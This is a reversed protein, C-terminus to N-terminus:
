PLNEMTIYQVLGLISTNGGTPNSVSSTIVLPQNVSNAINGTVDCSSMAISGNTTIVSELSGNDILNNNFDQLYLGVEGATTWPTDNSSWVYIWIPVIVTNPGQASVLILPSSFLNGVQAPSLSISATQLFTNAFINYNNAIITNAAINNAAITNAAIILSSNQFLNVASITATQAASNLQGYTDAGFLFVFRDNLDDLNNKIPLNTFVNVGQQSM